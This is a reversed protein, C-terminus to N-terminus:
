AARRSQQSGFLNQYLELLPASEHRWSFVHRRALISRRYGALKESDGMMANIADAFAQPTDLTRVLGFGEAVIVTRLFTLDNALIPLGAQIFEYLKNPSAYLNNLDNAQYPIIGADASASWFLLEAQSVAPVFHVRATLGVETAREKLKEQDKGYGMFVLHVDPRVFSMAELLPGLGRWIAIWGQYLLIKEDARIPLIQRFRNHRAAADFGPPPDVANQIVKVSTPQYRQEMERALIPNVTVTVDADRIYKSERRQLVRKEKASLTCIEPYLEHADYILPVGLARKAVVGVRLQPLDHVHICDPRYSIVRKALGREAVPVSRLIALVKLAARMLWNLLMLVCLHGGSILRHAFRALKSVLPGCLSFAVVIIKEPWVETGVQRRVREVKVNGIIEHTTVDGSPAALLIVEHGCGILTEAEQLIRRDIQVDDTVMVIRM